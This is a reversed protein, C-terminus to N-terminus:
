KVVEVVVVEVMKTAGRRSRQEVMKKREGKKKRRKKEKKERREEQKKHREMCLTPSPLTNVPGTSQESQFPAGWNNLTAIRLTRHLEQKKSEVCALHASSHM